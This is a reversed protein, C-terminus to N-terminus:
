RVRRGAPCRVVNGAPCLQGANGAVAPTVEGLQSPDKLFTPVVAGYAVLDYGDFVMGTTALAVAWVM